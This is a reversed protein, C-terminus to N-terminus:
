IAQENGKRIEEGAVYKEHCYEERSRVLRM